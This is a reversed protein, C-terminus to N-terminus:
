KCMLSKELLLMCVVNLAFFPLPGCEAQESWRRAEEYVVDWEGQRIADNIVREYEVSM